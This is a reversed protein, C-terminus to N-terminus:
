RKSVLLTCPSDMYKKFAEMFDQDPEYENLEVAKAKKETVKWRNHKKALHIDIVCMTEGLMRNEVVLVNNLNRGDILEHQHAAVIVDYEPCKMALDIVGSNQVKRENRLGMHALGVLVDYKNRIQKYIETTEQVSDTVKGGYLQEPEFKMFAPTLLGIIAIRIGNVNLIVYDDCLRNGDVDYVNALVATGQFDRLCESAYDIGLGAEHNGITYVDYNLYNLAGIMEEIEETENLLDGADVLITKGPIYYEKIASSIQAVSGGTEIENECGAPFLQSHIDSTAIIRIMAKEEEAKGCGFFLFVFSLFLCLVNKKQIFDKM